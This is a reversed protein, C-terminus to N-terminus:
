TAHGGGLRPFATLFAVRGTSWPKQSEKMAGLADLEVEGAVLGVFACIAFEHRVTSIGKGRKSFVGSLIPKQRNISWPEINTSCQVM